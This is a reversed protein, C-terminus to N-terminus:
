MTVQSSTFNLTGELQSFLMKEQELYNASLTLSSTQWFKMDAVLYSQFISCQHELNQQQKVKRANLKDEKSLWEFWYCEGLFNSLQTFDRQAIDTLLQEQMQYGAIEINTKGIPVDEKMKDKVISKAVLAL